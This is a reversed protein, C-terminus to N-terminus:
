ISALWELLTDQSLGRLTEHLSYQKARAMLQEKTFPTGKFAKTFAAAADRLEFFDGSLNVDEVLSGRLLFRLEITGCGDIHTRLCEDSSKIHGFLFAEERYSQEIHTIAKIDNHSLLVCRDTLLATLQQRLDYISGSFFDKIFGVRRRVSQVGKAKLKEPDPRLARQMAELNTDYLMTGHVINHGALHYFANGCIKQGNQLVIDNRGTAQATVGIESLSAAVAQAYARFLTEVDGSGTVVSWMINSDDAFVAGGGSKRRVVDIGEAACYDLDFEQHALQNRGMVVTPPVIWSFLYSGTDLTQAVYEEAALYFTARRSGLGEPFRVECAPFLTHPM